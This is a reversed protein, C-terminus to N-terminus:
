HWNPNADEGETASGEEFCTKAYEQTSTIALEFFCGNCSKNALSNTRMSTYPKTM